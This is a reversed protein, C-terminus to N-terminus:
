ARAIVAALRPGTFSSLTTFVDVPLTLPLLGLGNRALLVPLFVIWAGAFALVFFATLPYRRM